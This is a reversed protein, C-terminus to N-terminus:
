EGERVIKKSFDLMVILLVFIILLIFYFWLNFSIFEVRIQSLTFLVLVILPFYKHIVVRNKYQHPLRDYYTKRNTKFYRIYNKRNVVSIYLYILFLGILYTLYVNADEAIFQYNQNQVHYFLSMSLFVIIFLLIFEYNKSKFYEKM